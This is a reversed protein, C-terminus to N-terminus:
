MQLQRYGGPLNENQQKLLCRDNNIESLWLLQIDKLRQRIMNVIGKDAYHATM